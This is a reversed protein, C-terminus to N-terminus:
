NNTMEKYEDSMKQFQEPSIVSIIEKFINDKAWPWPLEFYNCLKLSAEINLEYPGRMFFGKDGNESYNGKVNAYWKNNENDWTLGVKVREQGEKLNPSVFYFLEGKEKFIRSLTTFQNLDDPVDPIEEELGM